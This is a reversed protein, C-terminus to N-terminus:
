CHKAIWIWFLLSWCLILLLFSAHKSGSLFFEKNNKIKEKKHIVPKPFFTSAYHNTPFHSNQRQKNTKTGNTHFSADSGILFFLAIARANQRIKRTQIRLTYFIVQSIKRKKKIPDLFQSKFWYLWTAARRKCLPLYWQCNLDLVSRLFRKKISVFSPWYIM